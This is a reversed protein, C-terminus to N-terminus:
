DVSQPILHPFYRTYDAPENINILCRGNDAGVRCRSFPQLLDRLTVSHDNSSVIFKCVHKSLLVPHGGRGEWVPTVFDAQSRHEILKTILSVDVFPNDINQIYCFEAHQVEGLGLRLSHIRGDDPSLNNVVCIGDQDGNYGLDVTHNSVLVIQHIGAQRYQSILRQLFNQRGDFPLLAKPSGMRSSWGGSLIVCGASVKQTSNRM